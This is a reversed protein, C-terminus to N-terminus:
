NKTYSGTSPDLVVVPMDKWRVVENEVLMKGDGQNVVIVKENGGEGTTCGYKSQNAAKPNSYNM